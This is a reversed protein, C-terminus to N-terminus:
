SGFPTTESFFLLEDLDAGSKISYRMACLQLFKLISRRVYEEFLDVKSALNPPLELKSGHIIASRADYFARITHFTEKRADGRPCIVCSCRLPIKYRQYEKDGFLAELSIMLEILRDTLTRREYSSSFHHIASQIPPRSVFSWYKGFFDGFARINEDTMPYPGRNYLAEPKPKIPRYDVFVAWVFKKLQMGVSINRRLFIDGPLFLKLV